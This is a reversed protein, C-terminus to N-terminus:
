AFQQYGETWNLILGKPWGNDSRVEKIVLNEKFLAHHIKDRLYNNEDANNPGFSEADFEDMDSNLKEISDAMIDDFHDYTLCYEFKGREAEKIMENKLVDMSMKFAEDYHKKNLAKVAKANLKLEFCNKDKDAM